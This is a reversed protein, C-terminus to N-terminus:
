KVGRAKKNLIKSSFKYLLKVEEKDLWMGGCSDCIDLIAGSQHKIKRMVQKKILTSCRPCKMKKNQDM